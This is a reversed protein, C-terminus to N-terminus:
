NQSTKWLGVDLKNKRQQNKWCSCEVRRQLSAREFEIKLSTTMKKETREEWRELMYEKMGSANHHQERCGM